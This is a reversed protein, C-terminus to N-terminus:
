PMMGLANARWVTVLVVVMHLGKNTTEQVRVESVGEDEKIRRVGNQRRGKEKKGLM